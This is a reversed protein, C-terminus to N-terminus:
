VKTQQMKVYDSKAEELKERWTSLCHIQLSRKNRQRVYEEKTRELRARRCNDM